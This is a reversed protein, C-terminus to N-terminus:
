KRLLIWCMAMAKDVSMQRVDASKSAESVCSELGVAAKLVMEDTPSQNQLVYRAAVFASKMRDSHSAAIWESMQAQLLNGAQACMPLLALGIILARKM